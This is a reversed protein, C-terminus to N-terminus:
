LEPDPLLLLVATLECHTKVIGSLVLCTVAGAHLQTGYCASLTSQLSPKYYQQVRSLQAVAYGQCRLPLVGNIAHSGGSAFLLGELWAM